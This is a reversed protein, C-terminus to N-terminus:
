QGRRLQFSVGGRIQFPTGLFDVPSRNVVIKEATLNEFTIFFQATEGISHSLHADLQFFEDLVVRNLDDDFQDGVLRGIWALHFRGPLSLDTTFSLRHQPVQPLIKGVLGPDAPNETVRARSFLYYVQFQIDRDLDWAASAELGAIRARGLNQRQRLVQAPSPQVPLTVNSVPDELRNFFTALSLRLTPAAQVRSGIEFGLNRESTLESNPRTIVNGVTFQRYLENLTPARFSRFLSGYLALRPAAQFTFGARPSFVTETKGEVAQLLRPAGSNYTGTEADYNKAVDVRGGVVLTLRPTAAFNEEAFFGLTSQKGLGVRSLLFRAPTGTFVDDKSEGAVIWLDSGAVIQHRDRSASWLLSVGGDAAPVHQQTTLRESNRDGRGGGRLGVASFGSTFITRRFFARIDLRDRPAPSFQFRTSFDYSRTENIQLPTGNDRDENLFGGELSLVSSDTVPAREAYFRFSQYNVGAPIDVTGRQSEAVIPYGGFHLLSGSASVGYDGLRHSAYFDGKVSERSGGQFQFEATSPTPLKKLLQIVGGLGYNGYLGSGGGNAVEVQQISLTPLRDWYIWGGFADNLPVGDNLLLSRSVGSPGIGRLSVGQTTPHAVLSSSRRFLSFEPLARLRDDLAQYPMQRFTEETLVKVNAVSTAVPVPLRSATVTVSENLAGLRVVVERDEEGLTVEQISPLYPALVAQLHYRGPSLRDFLFGGQQDATVVALERGDQLLTVQAAPLPGRPGQVTGRLTASWAETATGALFLLVLLSLNRRHSRAASFVRIVSNQFTM